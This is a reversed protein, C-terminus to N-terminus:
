VPDHVRAGNFWVAGVADTVRTNPNDLSKQRALEAPLMSTEDALSGEEGNYELTGLVHQDEVVHIKQGAYALTTVNDPNILAYDGAKCSMPLRKGSAADFFGPGTSIVRYLGLKDKLGVPIIIKGETVEAIKVIELHIHHNSPKFNLFNM